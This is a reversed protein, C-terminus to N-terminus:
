ISAVLASIKRSEEEARMSGITYASLIADVFTKPRPAQRMGSEVTDMPDGVESYYPSATIWEPLETPLNMVEQWDGADKLIVRYCVALLDELEIAIGTLTETTGFDENFCNIADQSPVRYVGSRIKRATEEYLSLRSVARKEKYESRPIGAKTDKFVPRFAGGNSRIILAEEIPADLLDPDDTHIALALEFARAGVAVLQNRCKLAPIGDLMTLRYDERVYDFVTLDMAKPFGDDQMQDPGAYEVAPRPKVTFSM